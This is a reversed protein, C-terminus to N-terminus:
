KEELWNGAGCIITLISVISFLIQTCIIAPEAWHFPPLVGLVYASGWTVVLFMVLGLIIYKM